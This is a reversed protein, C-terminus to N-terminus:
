RECNNPYLHVDTTARHIPRSNNERDWQVANIWMQWTISKNNYEMHRTHQSPNPGSKLCSNRIKKIVHMPDQMVTLKNGTVVNLTQYKSIVPAGVFLSKYYARNEPAGDAMIYEVNFGFLYLHYCLKPIITHLDYPKANSTPYNAVPFRFGTHGVFMVQMVQTALQRNVEDNSMTDRISNAEVGTDIFGVLTPVNDQLKIVIDSQIKMEDYILGGAYGHQEIKQESATEKMWKLMAINIGPTQDIRNKYRILQRGSPLKLMGSDKLINYSKRGAVYMSLCLRIVRPDWRIANPSAMNNIKVQEMLLIRQEDTCNPLMQQTLQCLESNQKACLEMTPQLHHTYYWDCALCMRKNEDVALLLWCYTSHMRGRDTKVFHKPIRDQLPRGNCPALNTVIKIIEHEETYGDPLHLKQLNLAKTGFQLSWKKTDKYFVITKTKGTKNCAVQVIKKNSSDHLTTYLPSNNLSLVGLESRDVVIHNEKDAIFGLRCFKVTEGNKELRRPKIDFIKKVRRSIVNTSM